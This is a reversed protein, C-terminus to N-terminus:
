PFSVLPVVVAFISFSPFPVKVPRTDVPGNCIFDPSTILADMSAVPFPVKVPRTDVPSNSIFDPSTILADMSAVPFPVNFSSIIDEEPVLPVM